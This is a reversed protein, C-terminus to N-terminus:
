YSAAMIVNLTKTVIALLRAINVAPMIEAATISESSVAFWIVADWSQQIM